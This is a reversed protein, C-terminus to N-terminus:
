GLSSGKRADYSWARLEVGMLLQGHGAATANVAANPAPSDSAFLARLM